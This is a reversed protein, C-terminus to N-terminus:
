PRRRYVFMARDLQVVVIQSKTKEASSVQWLILLMSTKEIHDMRYTFVYRQVYVVKDFGDGDRKLEPVWFRAFTYIYIYLLVIAESGCGRLCVTDLTWWLGCYVDDEGGFGYGLCWVRWLVCGTTIVLLGVSALCILLLTCTCGCCIRCCLM